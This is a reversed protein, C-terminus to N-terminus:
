LSVTMLLIFIILKSILFSNTATFVTNIRSKSIVESCLPVWLAQWVGPPLLRPDACLHGRLQQQHSRLLTGAASHGAWVVCFLSDMWVLAVLRGRRLRKSLLVSLFPSWLPVRGTLSQEECVGWLPASAESTSFCCSCRLCTPSARGLALFSSQSSHPDKNKTFPKTFIVTQLYWFLM